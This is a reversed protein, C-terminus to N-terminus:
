QGKMWRSAGYLVTFAGIAVTWVSLWMPADMVFNGVGVVFLAFGQLLLQKSSMGNGRGHAM